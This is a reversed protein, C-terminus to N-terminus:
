NEGRPRRRADARWARGLEPYIRAFLARLLLKLPGSLFLMLLVSSTVSVALLGLIQTAGDLHARLTWMFVFSLALACALWALSYAGRFAARQAELVSSEPPDHESM